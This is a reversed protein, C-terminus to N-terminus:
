RFDGVLWQHSFVMSMEIPEAKARDNRLVRDYSASKLLVLLASDFASIRSPEVIRINSIAGDPHITFSVRAKLLQNHRFAPEIVKRYRTRLQHEISEKWTAMRTATANKDAEGAFTAPIWSVVCSFFTALTACGVIRTKIVLM